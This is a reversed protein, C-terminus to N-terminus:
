MCRRRKRERYEDADCEDRQQERKGHDQREQEQGRREVQHVRCAAVLFLLVGVAGLRERDPEAGAVEDGGAHESELLLSPGCNGGSNETEQKQEEAQEARRMVRACIEPANAWADSAHTERASIVKLGEGIMPGTGLAAGQNSVLKAAGTLM